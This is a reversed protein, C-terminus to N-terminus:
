TSYTSFHEETARSFQRNLACSGHYVMVTDATLCLELGPSLQLWNFFFVKFPLLVRWDTVPPCPHWTPNWSTHTHLKQHFLPTITDSHKCMPDKQQVQALQESLLLMILAPPPFFFMFHSTLKLSRDSNNIFLKGHGNEASTETVREAVTLLSSWEGRCKM